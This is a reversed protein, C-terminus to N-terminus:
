RGFIEKIKAQTEDWAGTCYTLIIGEPSILVKTPYARINYLAAIPQRPDNERMNIQRWTLGDHEIAQLWMERDRENGALGLVELNENKYENYLEVLKRHGARCPLCWTGWFSLLLYKGRYDSLSVTHGDRDVQTFNPAVSGVTVTRAAAVFRVIRQGFESNKATPGFNEFDGEIEEISKLAMTRTYLFASLPEDPNDVMFQAQIETIKRTLSGRQVILAVAAENEEQLLHKNLEEGLQDIQGQVDQTKANLIALVDNHRGGTIQTFHMSEVNGHITISAGQSVFFQIYPHPILQHRSNELDIISLTAYQASADNLILTVDFEENEHLITDSVPLRDDNYTLLILHNETLGEFTGKIRFDNNAFGSYSTTLVALMSIAFASLKTQINKM